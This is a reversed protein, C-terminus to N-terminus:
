RATAFPWTSVPPSPRQGYRLRDSYGPTDPLPPLFSWRAVNANDGVLAALNDGPDTGTTYWDPGLYEEGVLYTQAAGDLVDAKKIM